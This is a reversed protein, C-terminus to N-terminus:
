QWVEDLCLEDTVNDVCHQLVGSNTKHCRPHLKVVVWTIPATRSVRPAKYPAPRNVYPLSFPCLGEGAKVTSLESAGAGIPM